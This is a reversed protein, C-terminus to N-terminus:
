STDIYIGCFFLKVYVLLCIYTFLFYKVCTCDMIYLVNAFVDARGICKNQQYEDKYPEFLSMWKHKLCKLIAMQCHVIDRSVTSPDQDFHNEMWAMNNGRLSTGIM